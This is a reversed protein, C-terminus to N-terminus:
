SGIFVWWFSYKSTLFLRCFARMIDKLCQILKKTIKACNPQTHTTLVWSYKNSPNLSNAIRTSTHWNKTLQPFVLTPNPSLKLIRKTFTSFLRNFDENYLNPTLRKSVSPNTLSGQTFSMQLPQLYGQFDRNYDKTSLPVGFQIQSLPHLILQTRVVIFRKTNKKEERIWEQIMKWNRIGCWNLGRKTNWPSQM